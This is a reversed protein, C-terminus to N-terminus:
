NKSDTRYEGVAQSAQELQKASCSGGATIKRGAGDYLAVCGEPFIVEIEGTSRIALDPNRGTGRILQRGGTAPAASERLYHGNVWGDVVDEGPTQVRCWRQEGLLQCGLNRVIDGNALAGVVQHSTGAESRLNLVDNEPVSTVVWYDPGGSLGDAFDSTNEADEAVLPTAVALILSALIVLGGLERHTVSQLCSMM